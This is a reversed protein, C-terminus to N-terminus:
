IESVRKSEGFKRIMTHLCKFEDDIENQFDYPVKGVNKADMRAARMYEDLPSPFDKTDYRHEPSVLQDHVEVLWKALNGLTGDFGNLRRNAKFLKLQETFQKEDEDSQM